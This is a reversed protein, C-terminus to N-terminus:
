DVASEQFVLATTAKGTKAGSSPAPAIRASLFFPFYLYRQLLYQVPKIFQGAPLNRVVLFSKIFPM